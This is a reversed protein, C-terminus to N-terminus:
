KSGSLERDSTAKMETRIQELDEPTKEKTEASGCGIATTLLVATAFSAPHRLFKPLAPM